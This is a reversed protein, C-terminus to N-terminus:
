YSLSPHPLVFPIKPCPPRTVLTLCLSGRHGQSLAGPDGHLMEGCESLGEQSLQRSSQFGVAYLIAM